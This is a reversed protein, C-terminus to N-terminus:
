RGRPRDVDVEDAESGYLDLFVKYADSKKMGFRRKAEGALASGSLGEGVLTKIAAESDVKTEQKAGELVIVIEGKISERTSFIDYAESPTGRFIEEHLKTLERMIVMERPTLASKAAEFTQVIRQATEFFVATRTEGELNQFFAKREGLKKPVFGLYVFSGCDMGSVSLATIISSPGPIPVTLINAKAAAAVLRHGPDSIAPTGADTVIAIDEGQLLRELLTEIKRAENFKHLSVSKATIGWHQFLIRSKRTDECAVLDVKQLVDIARHTIDRLNGIPTAVVFLTGTTM